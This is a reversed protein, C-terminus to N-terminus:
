RIASSSSSTAYTPWITPIVASSRPIVPLSGANRAPDVDRLLSPKIRDAKVTPIFPAMAADMGGFHATFVARYTLTTVGRLPALILRSTM